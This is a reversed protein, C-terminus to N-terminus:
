ADDLGAMKGGFPEGDSGGVFFCKLQEFFGVDVPGIETGSTEKLRARAGALKAEIGALKDGICLAGAADRHLVVGDCEYVLEFLRSM